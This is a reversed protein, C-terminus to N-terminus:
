DARIGNPYLDSYYFHHRVTGTGDSGVTLLTAGTSDTELTNDGYCSLGISLSYTLRIGQYPISFFNTHEHGCITNTTTGVEQMAAFFGSDVPTGNEDRQCCISEMKLGFAGSGDKWTNKEADWAENYAYEYQSFPVHLIVSSTM